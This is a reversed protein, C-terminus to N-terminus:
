APLMRRQRRLMTGVVGFGAILLAWSGPEPVATLTDHELGDISFGEGAKLTPRTQALQTTDLNAYIGDLAAYDVSNPAVNALTGNTGLTGSPDNSYDMCSGTNANTKVTNTHALGLTHGIEQCITMNRWATTNYRAVGFYYDNLKVTGQVIFGGSLWVNAYGIWGTAGYNGNCVQVTAYVASCAPAISKGATVNFDINNALSWAAAAPALYPMWAPSLNGGLSIELPGTRAWKWGNWSQTLAAAPSAMTGALAIVAALIIRQRRLKGPRAFPRSTTLM